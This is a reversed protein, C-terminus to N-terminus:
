FHAPDSVILSKDVHIDPRDSIPLRVERKNGKPLKLEDLEWPDIGYSFLKWEAISELDKVRGYLDPYITLADEHVAVPEYVIEVPVPRDLFVVFTSRSHKKYKEMFSPDGKDTLNQQLYWALTLADGSHMRICGHSAARGISWDKTTGHLRIDNSMLMKVPGLPNKPGPPTIKDNKAWDSKPPYWWPNWEIRKITQPGIPTKYRVAGVAVPFELAPEEGEYLILKTAPVNIVIRYEKEGESIVKPSEELLGYGTKTSSPKPAPEAQQRGQDLFFPGGTPINLAPYSLVGLGFTVIFFSSLKM